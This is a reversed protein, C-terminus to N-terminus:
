VKKVRELNRLPINIREETIYPVSEHYQCHRSAPDEDFYINGDICVFLIVETCKLFGLPKVPNSQAGISFSTNGRKTCNNLLHVPFGAGKFLLKALLMLQSM